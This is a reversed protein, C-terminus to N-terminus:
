CAEERTITLDDYEDEKIAVYEEDNNFLYKIMMYRRINYMSLEHVECLEESENDEHNIEYADDYNTYINWRREQKYCSEDDGENIFGEMIAKNRLAEDKLESDELAEYWEYDEAVEDNDDSSEEDTLEVEDDGKVDSPHYGMDDDAERESDDDMKLECPINAVEVKYTFLDDDMRILRNVKNNFVELPTDCTLSVDEFKVDMIKEFEGKIVISVDYEISISVGYQDTSHIRYIPCFTPYATDSPLPYATNLKSLMRGARACEIGNGHGHKDPKSWKRSIKAIDTRVRSDESFNPRDHFNWGSSVGGARLPSTPTLITDENKTSSLLPSVEPYTLYPLFIFMRHNQLPRPIFPDLISSSNELFFTSNDEDESDDNEVGPPTLNDPGPFLDIEEQVPDSDEVLTTSTPLSEIITHSKEPSRSSSNGCLFSMRNIYDEHEGYCNGPRFRSLNM